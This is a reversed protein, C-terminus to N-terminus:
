LNTIRDQLIYDMKKFLADSKTTSLLVKLNKKNIYRQFISVGQDYDKGTVIWQYIEVIKDRIPQTEFPSPQPFQTALWLKLSNNLGHDNYAVFRADKVHQSIEEITKHNFLVRKEKTIRVAHPYIINGYMSRTCIGIGSAYDFQSVTEEFKNKEVVLPAHYDFHLVPLNKSILHDRTNKLRKRWTNSGFYSDPLARLDGKHMPYIHNADVPKNIIYDDNMLMFRESLESEKCARIIKRTINGDANHPGIEDPHKIYNINKIGNPMEGVIWVKGYNKLNKHVSRLSFRIENDNWKSGTGLIYLLDIKTNEAM